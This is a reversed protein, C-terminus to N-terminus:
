DFRVYQSIIAGKKKGIGEVQELARRDPIGGMRRRYDIIASALGKGIGPIVMLVETTAQNIPIPQFFLPAALAPPAIAQPPSNPLLRYSPLFTDAAMPLTQHSSPLTLALAIASQGEPQNALWYLGDGQALNTELWVLPPPKTPGASPSPSTLNRALNPLVLCLGVIVLV